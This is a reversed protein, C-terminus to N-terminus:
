KRYASWVRQEFTYFGWSENVTDAVDAWLRHRLRAAGANAMITAMPLWIYGLGFALTEFSNNKM